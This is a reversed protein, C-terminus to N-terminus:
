RKTMMAKGTIFEIRIEFPSRAWSSAALPAITVSSYRSSFSEAKVKLLAFLDSVFLDFHDGRGVLLGKQSVQALPGAASFVEVCDFRVSESAPDFGEAAAAGQIARLLVATTVPLEALATPLGGFGGAAGM